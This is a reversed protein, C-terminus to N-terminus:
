YHLPKQKILKLTLCTVNLGTAHALPYTPPPPPVYAWDCEEAEIINRKLQKLTSICM